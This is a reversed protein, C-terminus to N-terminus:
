NVEGDDEAAQEAAAVAMGVAMGAFYREWEIGGCQEKIVHLVTAAAVVLAERPLGRRCYPAIAKALKPDILHDLAGTEFLIPLDVLDVDKADMMVIGKGRGMRARYSGRGEVM